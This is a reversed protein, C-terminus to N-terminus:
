HCLGLRDKREGTSLVALAAVVAAVSSAHEFHRAPHNLQWLQWSQFSSSDVTLAHLGSINLWQTQLHLGRVRCTASLM